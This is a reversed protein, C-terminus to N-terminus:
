DDKEITFVRKPKHKEAEKVANLADKRNIFFRKNYDNITFPHVRKDRKDVGTGWRDDVYRITIECVEFIGLTPMIRTFYVVDKVKIIDKLSM